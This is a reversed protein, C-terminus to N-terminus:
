KAANANTNGQLAETAAAKAAAVRREKEAKADAAVKKLQDSDSRRRDAEAQKASLDASGEIEALRAAQVGISARYSRASEFPLVSEELIALQDDNLTTVDLSPSNKVYDPELQYAQSFIKEGENVCNRLKTLDAENEPKVFQYVDKGDKKVTKRVKDNNTIDAACTNFELGLSVLARARATPPFQEDGAVKQLWQKSVDGQGLADNLSTIASTTSNVASLASFYRKQEAVDGSNADYAAKADAYEKLSQPIAKNYEVLAKEAWEKNQRDASFRQHLTRALFIQATRGELTEGEPDRAAARRFLDEAVDFKRDKYATSGDVLNKRSMVRNYTSCNTTVAVTLAILLFIGLRSFRM